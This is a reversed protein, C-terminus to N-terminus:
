KRGSLLNYLESDLAAQMKEGFEKILARRKEESLPPMDIKPMVILVNHAQYQEEECYVDHHPPTFDSFIPVMLPEPRGLYELRLRIWDEDQMWREALECDSAPHWVLGRADRDSLIARCCPCEVPKQLFYSCLAQLPSPTNMQLAAAIHKLDLKTPLCSM